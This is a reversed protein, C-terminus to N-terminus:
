VEGSTPDKLATLVDQIPNAVTNNSSGAYLLGVPRATSSEVVLSGSDGSNSFTSGTIAIQGNFIVKFDTGGQCATSYTVQIIADTAFVTSCTVGTADGSKAVGQNVAPAALSSSPPAAQGPAALDLISGSTDVQGPIIQGMAADVNSTKLPAAQSMNAVIKNSLQGCNSDALGPQSIPDGATGQDSKDLVHNNSLIFLAGGRSLLAGLTGSCCFVKTGSTTKDTANGGSTGLKIAGSQADQNDHHVRIDATATGSKSTDAVSTATITVSAPNPATAPATYLGSSSITGVTTNGGQISNASWTVGTNSSGTVTATYVQTGGPALTASAPTVTVAINQTPPPTSSGSSGGGGGCSLSLVSVSLLLLTDLSAALKRRKMSSRRPVSTGGM